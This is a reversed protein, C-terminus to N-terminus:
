RYIDIGSFMLPNIVCRAVFVYLFNRPVALILRLNLLWYVCQNGWFNRKAKGLFIERMVMRGPLQISGLFHTYLPALVCIGREKDSISGQQSDWLWDRYNWLQIFSLACICRHVFCFTRFSHRVNPIIYFSPRQIPFPFSLWALRKFTWNITHICSYVSTDPHHIYLVESKLSM